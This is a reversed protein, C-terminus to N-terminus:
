RKKPPGHSENFSKINVRLRAADSRHVHNQPSVDLWQELHAALGRERIFAAEISPKLFSGLDPSGPRISRNVSYLHYVHELVSSADLWSPEALRGAIRGLSEVVPVWASRSYTPSMLWEMGPAPIDWLDSIFAETKLEEFLAEVVARESNRVGLISRVLLHYTKTDRREEDADVAAALWREAEEFRAAIDDSSNESLALSVEVLGREFKAQPASTELKAYAELLEAAKDFGLFDHAASVLRCYLPDALQDGRPEYAQLAACAINSWQHDALAFRLIGASAEAQLLPHESRDRTRRELAFVFPRMNDIPLDQLADVCERIALRGVNRELGDALREIVIQNDGIASWDNRLAGAVVGFASSMQFDSELVNDVGGLAQLTVPRGAAELEVIVNELSNIMDLRVRKRDLLYANDSGFFHGRKQLASVLLM